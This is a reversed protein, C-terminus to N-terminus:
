AGRLDTIGITERFAPSKEAFAKEMPFPKQKNNLCLTGTAILAEMIPSPVAKAIKRDSVEFREWFISLYTRKLEPSAQQYAEGLNRALLIVKQIVDVKINKNADLKALESGCSVIIERQREKIRTFDNDDLVGSILKEEALQLKSEAASKTALIKRKERETDQKKLSYIFKVRELLREIFKESFQIGRFHEVVQDELDKVNVGRDNDPIVFPKQKNTAYPRYYSKDKKKEHNEGIFRLGSIASFVYGRLLFDYKRRRCVGHGNNLRVQRCREFVEQSTLPTHKGMKRMEGWVMEGHYFPNAIIKFMNALGLKGGTHSTLGKKFIWERLELMPHNGTAYKRFLETVVPGKIPDVVIIRKDPNNEEGVNLYGLTARTPWWGDNFRQQMSKKTKRSTIQSQLQNVGAIITDMFNGEPTDEIGPQSISVLTASYKKLLAKITTHDNVNRALRDTDLVFVARIDKEQVRVLMDQLAPRNMTTASKGADVFVGNDTLEYKGSETITKKCLDEQTALSYRGGKAQEETSVRCYIVAKDKTM